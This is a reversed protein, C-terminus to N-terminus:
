SKRRNWPMQALLVGMACTDTLAAITVGLGVFGALYIAPDFGLRNLIVGLFVLSGSVVRVQRELTWAGTPGGVTPLGAARWRQTGGELVLFNPDGGRATLVRAAEAARAGSHCLLCVTGHCDSPLAVNNQLDGLPLNVAGEAHLADFEAPTRVDLLYISEGQSRRRAVEGPQIKSIPM